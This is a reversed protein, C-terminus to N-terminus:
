YMEGWGGTHFSIQPESTVGATEMAAKLAPNELFAHLTDFSEAQHYVIALSPDDLSRNAAHGVIGNSRRLEDAADYGALWSDFDAVTHSILFAPLTRTWDVSERVPTVWDMSPPGMVGAKAMAAKLEDSSGFARLADADTAAMFVALENPNDQSRNIHHAIISASQRLDRGADFEAKWTDFDAVTSNVVVAVPPLAQSDSM